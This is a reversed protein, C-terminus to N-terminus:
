LVQAPPIARLWPYDGPPPEPWVIATPDSQSTVDRLAQRYVAWTAKATPDYPSDPLQTFDTVVLLAARYARVRCWNAAVLNDIGAPTIRWAGGTYVYEICAKIRTHVQDPASVLTCGPLTYGGGSGRVKGTETEVLYQM